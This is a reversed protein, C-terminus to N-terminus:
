GHREMIRLLAALEDRGAKAFAKKKIFPSRLCLYSLPSSSMSLANKGLLPSEPIYCRNKYGASKLLSYLSAAQELTYDEKDPDPESPLSHWFDWFIDSDLITKRFSLFYADIHEELCKLSSSSDWEPDAGALTFPKSNIGWFDVEQESMSQFVEGLPFISLVVSSDLLILEDFERLHERGISLLTGKWAMFDSIKEETKRTEVYKLHALNELGSCANTLVITKECFNSVKEILKCDCAEMFGQVNYHNCIALRRINNESLCSPKQPLTRLHLYGQGAVVWSIARELAHALTCDTQGKEAKFEDISFGVKFLPRIAEMRAWFMHGVPFPFVRNERRIPLSCRSVIEECKQQNFWIQTYDLGPFDPPSILGLKKNRSFEDLISTIYEPSYLLNEYLYKRWSDGYDGQTTRKSHIHCVLDCDKLYEYASIYFPAADRGVNPVELVILKIGSRLNKGQACIVQKKEWSDTTVVLTFPGPLNACWSFIEATLELFFIHAHVAVRIESLSPLDQFNRNDLIRFDRHESNLYVNPGIEIRLRELRQNLLASIKKLLGAYGAASKPSTKVIKGYFINAAQYLKALCHRSYLFDRNFIGSVIRLPLLLRNRLVEKM